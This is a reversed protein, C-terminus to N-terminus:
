EEPLEPVTVPELVLGMAEVSERIWAPLEWPIPRGYLDVHGQHANCRGHGACARVSPPAWLRTPERIEM